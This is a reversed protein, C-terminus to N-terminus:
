PLLSTAEGLAAVVRDIDADEMSPFLPLTLLRQYVAEAVPCDGPGTGLHRRYYPHLHVPVYHVNAGIGAERLHQFVTERHDAAPGDLRVVYLHYAHEVHDAVSLPRVAPDGAFAADYRAALARRRELWVPLKRLQSLALASHIDSLRYNFGLDEMEYFWAGQEARQRHDTTIGHNRFRRMIAALERDDTTVMGGEGAAIHKVPHFSFTSLRALSGVPRGRHVAGLAHCADAVLSLDHTACLVALQDYRSPHGAYDMTVVARTRPTLRAEVAAPDLLLNDGTVDAFVPTAGEYLVANATAAFTLPPVVVEDGAKLGLARMAAHLAATGSSVAVGEQAGVRSAVRRELEDVAPGTTLWDSRLVATVAAVDDEDIQHRGYPLISM